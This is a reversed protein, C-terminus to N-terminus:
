EKYIEELFEMTYIDTVAVAAVLVGQDRMTADMDAWVEPKMWGISDEGTNIFPLSALMHTNELDVDADPNYKAVLPGVLTPNEVAYTWGRLTADLFRRVLDPNAAIWADTSFLTDGYHHVGYDDPYIINIDHGSRQVTLALATVYAGWVPVEGAVVLAPDSPLNVVTYQDPSIGVHSAMAQLIVVQDSVARIQKGVFDEPRTIGTSALAFFVTPNRRYIVAIAKVPKGQARALLLQDAGAIGLQADGNVVQTIPDVQLGGAVLTVSIGEGAYDGNVDAAYFGGFQTAHTWKLQVTIADVPQSAPPQCAALLIAMLLLVAPIRTRTKM